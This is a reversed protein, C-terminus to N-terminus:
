IAQQTPPAAPPPTAATPPQISVAESLPGNGSLLALLRASEERRQEDKKTEEDIFDVLDQRRVAFALFSRFIVEHLERNPDHHLKTNSANVPSAANCCFIRPLSLAM